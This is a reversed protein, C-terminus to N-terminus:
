RSGHLNHLTCSTCTWDLRTSVRGLANCEGWNQIPLTCCSAFYSLSPPLFKIERVFPKEGRYQRSFEGKDERNSPPTPFFKFSSIQQLQLSSMQVHFSSKASKSKTCTASKKLNAACVTGLSCGGRVNRSVNSM